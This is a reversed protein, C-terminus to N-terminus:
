PYPWAERFLLKGLKEQLISSNPWGINYIHIIKNM